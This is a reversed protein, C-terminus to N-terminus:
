VGSGDQRLMEAVDADLGDMADGGLDLFEDGNLKRKKASTSGTSVPRAYSTSLSSLLDLGPTASQAPTQYRFDHNNHGNETKLDMEPIPESMPPKPYGPPTLAEVEPRDPEPGPTVPSHQAGPTSDGIPTTPNSNSAFGRMISEEVERKKNDIENRRQSFEALQTEETTLAARNDDLMKELAEILQTRAKMSEAVAGHANALTKLLGNLRAAHVPASPPVASPDTLKAYDQNAANISTKTSLVLKTLTQQPAVLPALENPVGNAGSQFISGGPRKANGRVKDLEVSTLYHVLGSSSLRGDIRNEIVEQIPLEFIQRARWVEVVRRLKQQVEFTAGKYATATADAIVPSFAILFDDKKRAKSQQAVEAFSHAM